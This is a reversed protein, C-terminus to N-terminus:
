ATVVSGLNGLSPTPKAGAHSQPNGEQQFEESNGEGFAEKAHQAAEDFQESRHEHVHENEGHTSKVNFGGEPHKEMEVKHAPGHEAVVGKIDEQEGAAPKTKESPAEKAMPKESKSEKGDTKGSKEKGYVSGWSKM